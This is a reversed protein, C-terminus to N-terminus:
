RGNEFAMNKFNLIQLMCPQPQIIKSPTTSMLLLSTNVPMQIGDNHCKGFGLVHMNFPRRSEVRYREFQRRSKKLRAKTHWQSHNCIARRVSPTQCITSSIYVNEVNTPSPRAQVRKQDTSPPIGRPFQDKLKTM